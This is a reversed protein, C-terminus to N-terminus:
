NQSASEWISRLRNLDVPRIGHDGPQVVFLDQKARGQADWTLPAMSWSFDQVSRLRQLFDDNPDFGTQSQITHTLRVFDYGLAIWFDPERENLDELGQSLKQVAPRSNDALWPSAMMSLQFYKRDLASIEVGSQSWLTPGLFFLHDQDFYYFEPILMQVQSFSDPIFVAQFEPQNAQKDQGKSGASKLLEAVVDKWSGPEHPQYMMVDVVQGTSNQVCRAFAASMRQGYASRPSLVAYSGIGFASQLLEVLPELQDETGPFFRFGDKGERGPELNSRFPFFTRKKEHPSDILAEWDKKGLPGGVLRCRSPLAELQDLWDPSDSNLIYLNLNKRSLELQWQAISAGLAIKWGMPAYDGSLPCCLAVSIVAQGYKKELEALHATFDDELALQNQRLIESLQAQAEPWTTKNQDFSRMTEVWRVLANLVLGTQPPNQSISEWGQDDTNYLLDLIEQELEKKQELSQAQPYLFTLFPWAKSPRGEHVSKRTVAMVTKLRVSWPMGSDVIVSSAHELWADRDTAWLVALRLSQWQWDRKAKPDLGAWQGLALAANEWHGNTQSALALGSLAHIKKQRSLGETHVLRSYLNEAKFTDGQELAQDARLLLMQHGAGPTGDVPMRACGALWLCCALFGLSFGFIYKVADSWLLLPLVELIITGYSLLAACLFPRAWFSPWAKTYLFAFTTSDLM